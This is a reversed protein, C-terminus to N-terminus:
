WESRDLTSLNLILPTICRNGRYAKMAQISVVNVANAIQDNYRVPLKKKRHSIVLQKIYNLHM